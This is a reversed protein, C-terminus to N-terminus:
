RLHVMLRRNPAIRGNNTIMIPTSNTATRMGAQPPLPSSSPVGVPVAAAVPVEAAVPVALALAVAAAVAADSAGPIV